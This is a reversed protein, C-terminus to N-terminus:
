VLPKRKDLFAKVKDVMFHAGKLKPNTQIAAGISDLQDQTLVDAPLTKLSDLYRHSMEFSKCNVFQDVSAAALVHAVTPKKALVGYIQEAVVEPKTSGSLGQFRGLFGYPDIGLRVPLIPIGRRLCYGIEQDTWKSEHFLPTLLAAMAHCTELAELIVDVWEKTPEIDQHAVFASIGCQSLAIKIAAVQKKDESVHSLFLRLRNPAWCNPEEKKPDAGEGDSVLHDYLEQLVEGSVDMNPEIVWSGTKSMRGNYEIGFQGYILRLEETPLKATLTQIKKIIKIRDSAKMSAM